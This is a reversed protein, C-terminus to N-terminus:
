ISENTDEKESLILQHLEETIYLRNKPTLSLFAEIFCRSEIQHIKQKLLISAERPLDLSILYEFSIQYLAALDYLQLMAAERTGNELNSYHSRSIGVKKCIDEQSMSSAIRLFRLNRAIQFTDM